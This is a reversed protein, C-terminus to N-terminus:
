GRSLEAEKIYFPSSLDVLHGARKRRSKTPIIPSCRAFIPGKWIVMGSFLRGVSEDIGDIWRAAEIGEVKDTWSVGSQPRSSIQQVIYPAGIRAIALFGSKSACSSIRAAKWFTSSVLHSLMSPM